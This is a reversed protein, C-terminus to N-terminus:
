WAIEKADFVPGDVCVRKYENKVGRKVSCVCSLCVGVGCAMLNELSVQCAIGHAEATEAVAKLMKDPGCAFVVAEDSLGCCTKELAKTVLGKIGASGDETATKVGSFGKKYVLGSSRAGILTIIKKNQKKLLDHLALLPSIGYGGGVLIATKFNGSTKFGKGLTGLINLLEGAKYKSLLGTGTGRVKYLIEIFPPKIKHLSMPRRLLPVNERSTKISIFQGPVAAAALAPALLRMKWYESSVKKNSVIKAKITKKM